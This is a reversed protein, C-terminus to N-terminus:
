KDPVAKAAEPVGSSFSVVDGVAVGARELAGAGTELVWQAPARSSYAATGLGDPEVKMTYIQVVRRDPGIFAIDLDILCDRMCFDRVAASPYIFLMGRGDPMDSRGSLGRYRGAPTVALEVQWIKGRITATAAEPESRECGALFAALIPAALLWERM